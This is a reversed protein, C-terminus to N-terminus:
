YEYASHPVQNNCVSSLSRAVNLQDLFNSVAELLMVLVGEQPNDLIFRITRGPIEMDCPAHVSSNTDCFNDLPPSLQKIVNMPIVARLDQEISLTNSRCDLIASHWQLFNVGLLCDIILNHVAIFQHDVKFNGLQLTVTTQVVVDLPTGNAGVACTMAKTISQRRVVSFNVVSVAAGSDLLFQIYSPQEGISGNVCFVTNM